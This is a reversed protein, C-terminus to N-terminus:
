REEPNHVSPPKPILKPPEPPPLVAPDALARQGNQFPDPIEHCDVDALTRYCYLRSRDIPRPPEPCYTGDEYFKVLSCDRGVMASALHDLPMKKTANLVSLSATGAAATLAVPAACGGLSLSLGLGLGLAAALLGITRNM